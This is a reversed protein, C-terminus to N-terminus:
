KVSSAPDWQALSPNNPVVYLEVRRNRQRSSEAKSAELPQFESYGMAAMREAPVGMKALALIVAASRDTSLHWNTPHKAATERRAIRQDDTHGVILIRMGSAAGSKVTSAFESLAPETEPRLLDSGLDFLVDSRFKNLGTAPDYEFGESELNTGSNGGVMVSGDESLKKAYRDTLENREAMLNEVRSNATALQSEADAIKQAMAQKEADLGMMMQQNQMQANLLNQNEAYLDRAHNQAAALQDATYNGRHCCGSVMVAALSILLFSKEVSMTKM